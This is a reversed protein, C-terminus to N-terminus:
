ACAQRFSVMKKLNFAACLMSWQTRVNELGRLTCRRFGWAQKIVGFIPEVIVKRKRLLKQKQPDRRNARQKAVAADYPSIEILRGQRNRSCQARVPCDRFKRCRYGRVAFRKGRNTKIGEFEWREGQPCRTARIKLDAAKGYRDHSRVVGRRALYRLGGNKLDAAQGRHILFFGRVEM